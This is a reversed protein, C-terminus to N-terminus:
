KFLRFGDYVTVVKHTGVQVCNNIIEIISKYDEPTIGVVSPNDIIEHITIVLWEDEDNEQKKVIQDIIKSNGSRTSISPIFNNIIGGKKIREESYEGLFAKYYKNCLEIAEPSTKTYPFCFTKPFFNNKRFDYLSECIEYKIISEDQDTWDRAHTKSHSGIENGHQEMEKMQEYNIYPVSQCPWAKSKGIKDTVLYFSGVMNYKKLTNYGITYQSLHGDDFRISIYIM